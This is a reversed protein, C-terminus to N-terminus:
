PELLWLSVSPRGGKPSKTTTQAKLRGLDVLQTVIGNIDATKANRGCLRNVVDRKSIGPRARVMACVKQELAIEYRKFAPPEAEDPSDLMSQVFQKSMAMASIAAEVHPLEILASQEDSWAYLLSLIHAYVHLRKMADADLSDTNMIPDQIAQEVWSVLRKRASTTYSQWVSKKNQSWVRHRLPQLLGGLRDFDIGAADEDYFKWKGNTGPVVLHRNLFGSRIMNENVCHKLLSVTTTACISLTPRM